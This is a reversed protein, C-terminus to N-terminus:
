DFLFPKLCYQILTMKELVAAHTPVTQDTSQHHLHILILLLNLGPLIISLHLSLFSNWEKDGTWVCMVLLVRTGIPPPGWGWRSCLCGCSHIRNKKCSRFFMIRWATSEQASTLCEYKMNMNWRQVPAQMVLPHDWHSQSVGGSSFLGRTFPSLVHIQDSRSGCVCRIAASWRSRKM